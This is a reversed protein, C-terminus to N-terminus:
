DDCFNFMMISMSITNIDILDNIKREIEGRLETCPTLEIIDNITKYNKNKLESRNYAIMEQLQSIDLTKKERCVPKIDSFDARCCTCKNSIQCWRAFCRVCHIHGCELTVKAVGIVDLCIPCNM